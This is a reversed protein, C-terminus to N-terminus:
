EVIDKIFIRLLCYGENYVTDKPLFCYGKYVIDKLKIFM